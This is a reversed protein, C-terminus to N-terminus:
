DLIKWRFFGLFHSNSAKPHWSPEPHQSLTDLTLMRVEGGDDPKYGTDYVVINNGLYIMSHYASGTALPHAFFLLDGRQAQRVDYGLPVTNYRMLHYANAELAYAQLLNQKPAPSQIQFVEKGLVPMPYSLAVEPLSLNALRPFRARWASTKPKLAEVYAFRLLSSCDRHRWDPSPQQYQDAAIQAFWERFATRERLGKLEWVDPVGDRDSDAYDRITAVTSAKPPMAPTASVGGLLGLACGVGTARLLRLFM